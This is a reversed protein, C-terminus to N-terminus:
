FLAGGGGGSPGGGSGGSPLELGFAEPDILSCPVLGGLATYQGCLAEVEISNASFSAPTFRIYVRQDDLGGIVQGAFLNDPVGIPLMGSISVTVSVSGDSGTIVSSNGNMTCPNSPEVSVQLDALADIAQLQQALAEEFFAQQEALDAQEELMEARGCLAETEPSLDPNADGTVPDGAGGDDCLTGNENFDRIGQEAAAAEAAARAAEAEARLFEATAVTSDAQQRAVMAADHVPDVIQTEVVIVEGPVPATVPNGTSPASGDQLRLVIEQTLSGDSPVPLQGTVLVPPPFEEPVAVNDLTCTGLEFDSQDYELDTFIGTNLIVQPSILDLRGCAVGVYHTTAVGNRLGGNIQMGVKFTRGIQNAPYNIHTTARGLNDTQLVAGQPTNDINGFYPPCGVTYHIAFGTDAAPPFPTSVQIENASLVGTIIRPMRQDRSPGELFIQCGPAVGIFDSGGVPTRLMRGGEEPNADSGKFLFEGHGCEPYTGPVLPGDMLFVMIPTGEPPVNGFRTSTLMELGRSYVGDQTFTDIPGLSVTNSNAKVADVFPGTVSVSRIVGDDITMSVVDTVPSQIGNDVNNDARDVSIQVQAIGPLTGSHLTTQAEGNFTRTHVAEGIVTTGLGSTATLFEGGNPRNPLLEVRVNNAGTTNPVPQFGDDLVQIPIIRQDVAGVDSTYITTAGLFNQDVLIFAPQGTSAGPEVTIVVTALQTPGPVPRPDQVSVDIVVTGPIGFNHYHGSAGGSNLGLTLSRFALPVGEEDEHEPDGDLYYLAGSDLGSRINMGVIEETSNIPSNDPFVASVHITATFPGGIQPGAGFTNPPLREQDVTVSIEIPKPGAFQALVEVPGVVLALVPFLLTALARISM